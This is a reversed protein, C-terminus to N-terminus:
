QAYEYCDQYGGSVGAAIFEGAIGSAIDAQRWPNGVAFEATDIALGVETTWRMHPRDGSEKVVDTERKFEPSLKRTAKPM